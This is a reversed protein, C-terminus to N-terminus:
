DVFYQWLEGAKGRFEAFCTVGGLEHLGIGRTGLGIFSDEGGCFCFVVGVDEVAAGLGAVGLVGGDVVEAVGLEGLVEGGVDGLLFGGVFGGQDLEGRSHDVFGGRVAGDGRAAAGFGGLQFGPELDGLGFEFAFFGELFDGVGAPGLTEVVGGEAEAVDVAAEVRAEEGAPEADRPHVLVDALLHFPQPAFGQAHVRHVDLVDAGGGPRGRLPCGQVGGGGSGCLFLFHVVHGEVDGVVAVQGLFFERAQEVRDEGDFRAKLVGEDVLEGLHVEIGDDAFHILLDQLRPRIQQLRLPQIGPLATRQAREHLLLQDLIAIQTQVIPLRLPLQPPHDPLPLHRGLPDPSESSNHPPPTTATFYKM